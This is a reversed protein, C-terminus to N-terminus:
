DLKKQLTVGFDKYGATRYLRVAGENSALASIRLYGIGRGRAYEEIKELLLKGIGKNRYEKTVCLDCVYLWKVVEDGGSRMYACVFGVATEGAYAMYTAGSEKAIDEFVEETYSAGSEKGSAMTDPALVNLADLLEAMLVILAQKNEPTYPSITIDM